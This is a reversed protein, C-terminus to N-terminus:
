AVLYSPEKHSGPLSHGCLLVAVVQPFLLSTEGVGLHAAVGEQCSNLLALAWPRSQPGLRAGALGALAHRRGEGWGWRGRLEKM